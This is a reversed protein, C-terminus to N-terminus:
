GTTLLRQFESLPLCRVGINRMDIINAEAIEMTEASAADTVVTVDYDLAVADFVTARICNPYQTGAVVIQSIALRRLIYDLETNMFGSFRNKVIRYENELPKLDEVIDCGYTNPVAYKKGAVFESYRFKEIDCGDQKYERVIHFVAQQNARFLTLLRAITPVTAYAGAICGPSGPLVFDNQMDIILLATDSKNLVIVGNTFLGIGPLLILTQCRGEGGGPIYLKGVIDFDM